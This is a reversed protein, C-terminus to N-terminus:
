IIMLGLLCHGYWMAWTVIFREIIWISINDPLVIGNFLIKLWFYVTVFFFISRFVNEHLSVLFMKLKFIGSLICAYKTRLLSLRRFMNYNLLIKAMWYDLNFSLKRHPTHVYLMLKNDQQNCNWYITCSASILNPGKRVRWVIVLSVIFFTSLM